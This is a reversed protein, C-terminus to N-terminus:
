RILRRGGGGRRVAVGVGGLPRRRLRDRVQAARAAQTAGSGRGHRNRSSLVRGSKDPAFPEGALWHLRYRFPWSSGARVPEAPVWYAVINDHIEDDTPIEVLQVSGAGWDDLPEVWLSPRRHYFAGDDQYNEFARDRQLLGFGKPGKDMFSSTQVRPPNNLPRWIREGAGTWLALGDSDHIEPRWDVAQHRNNEGYWFMSTLPAVGLRGIDRRAFLVAEVDNIVADDELSALFRFAGTLSPGELLAHITIAKDAPQGPELWFRSFRPFEELRATATDIAVGRASLGYQDLPGASRFYSAGQFALWDTEAGGPYMVRFGAFGLDDPIRQALAPDRFDFLRKDYLLERAQGDVVVAIRVSEPVHRGLHFFRAALAEQGGAALTAEARYHIGQHADFDISQLLAAHAPEAQVFPQSALSRAAERLAEFNFAQAPGFRLASAARASGLRPVGAGAALGLAALAVLLDRRSTVGGAALTACLRRRAGEALREKVM